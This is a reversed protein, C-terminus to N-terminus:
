HLLQRLFKQLPSQTQVLVSYCLVLLNDENFVSWRLFGRQNLAMNNPVSMVSTYSTMSDVSVLCSAVECLEPTVPTKLNVHNINIVVDQDLKRSSFDARFKLIVPVENGLTVFCPVRTGCGLIEVTRLDYASGCDEFVVSSALVSVFALQLLLPVLM